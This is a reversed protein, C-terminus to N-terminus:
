SEFPVAPFKNYANSIRCLLLFIRRQPDKEVTELQKSERCNPVLNMKNGILCVLIM